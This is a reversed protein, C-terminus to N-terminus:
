CPSAEHSIPHRVAVPGGRDIASRLADVVSQTRLADDVTAGPPPTGGRVASLFAGTEVLFGNVEDDPRRSGGDDVEVFTWGELAYRRRRTLIAFAIQKVQADHSYLVTGPVGSSFHLTAAMTTRGGTVGRVTAEVAAIEGVVYRAIDVLHTAQDNLPGGSLAPDMWWPVAYRGGVWYASVGLPEEGLMAARLRRVAPRHRNTYGVVHPTRSRRLTAALRQAADATTGVPKELLMPVGAEAVAVDIGARAGPPVCVFIADVREGLVDASRQSWRAGDCDAALARARDGDVDAVVAVRAGLSRAAAARERGMRGCGVVAVLLDSISPEGMTM